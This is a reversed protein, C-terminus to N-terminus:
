KQIGARQIAAATFALDASANSYSNNDVADPLTLSLLLNLTVDSATNFTGDSTPILGAAAPTIHIPAGTSFSSLAGTSVSATTATNPTTGSDCTYSGAPASSSIWTGGICNLLTYTLGDTGTVLSNSAPPVAATSSKDVGKVEGAVSYSLDVQKVLAGKNGTSSAFAPLTVVLPRQITDTPAINSVSVTQNMLIKVQGSDAHLTGSGSDTFLAFAGTGAVAAVAAVVGISAVIKKTNAPRRTTTTSAM